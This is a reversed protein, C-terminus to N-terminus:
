RHNVQDQAYGAMSAYGRVIAEREAYSAVADLDDFGDPARAEVLDIVREPGGRRNALVIETTAPRREADYAALAEAVAAGSSLHCALSRADLIAQGAGNSGTPYMPHAADGLLTARGFSWRPAPDRDCCPYEYFPETATILAVPDVVDLRFRDRVFPLAEDLRGPRSWDERRPPPGSGDGLRAMIGWNTLRTAPRSAGAHIPYCVFKAANGGAIVMTRADAYAPWETAGRWLMIGNWAPPGEDPYFIARLASHIGDAGVLVDGAVAVCAGDRRREFRALVRDGREAFGALRHGTHIRRAGLRERAARYLVGQLQGRHISIQPLEYGADTGRSEEWVPQGFRNMYILRRTRIGTCDLAPLLGLAALEKVAHPLLNIGVGLERIEHAREFLEAEIGVQHLALATALGGIGCGAIVVKM